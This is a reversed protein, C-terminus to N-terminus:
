EITKITLIPDPNGRKLSILKATILAYGKTITDIRLIHSIM